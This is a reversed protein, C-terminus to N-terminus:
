DPLYLLFNIIAYTIEKPHKSNGNQMPIDQKKKKPMIEWLLLKLIALFCSFGILNKPKNHKPIPNTINPM